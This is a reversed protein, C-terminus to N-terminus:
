MSYIQYGRISLLGFIEIPSKETVEVAKSLVDGKYNEIYTGSMYSTEEFLKNEIKLMVSAGAAQVFPDCNLENKIRVFLTEGDAEYSFLSLPCYIEKTQKLVKDYWSFGLAIGSVFSHFHQMPDSIENVNIEKSSYEIIKKFQDEERKCGRDVAECHRQNGGERPNNETTCKQVIDRELCVYNHEIRELPVSLHKTKLLSGEPRLEILDGELVTLGTEKKELFKLPTEKTGIYVAKDTIAKLPAFTVYKQGAMVTESENIEIKFENKEEFKQYSLKFCASVKGSTSCQSLEDPRIPTFGETFENIAHYILKELVESVDGVVSINMMQNKFIERLHFKLDTEAWLVKAQLQSEIEKYIKERNFNISVKSKTLRAQSEYIVRIEPGSAYLAKELFYRAKKEPLRLTVRFPKAIECFDVQRFGYPTVDYEEGEFSIIVRKLCGPLTVLQKQTSVQLENKFLVQLFPPLKLLSEGRHDVVESNLGDVLIVPFTINITGDSNKTPIIRSKEQQGYVWVKPAILLKDQYLPNNDMLFAKTQYYSPLPFEKLDSERYRNRELELLENPMQYRIVRIEKEQDYLIEEKKWGGSKDIKFGEITHAQPRLENRNNKGCAIIFFLIFLYRM